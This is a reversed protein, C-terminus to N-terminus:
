FFEGYGTLGRSETAMRKQYSSFIGETPTDPRFLVEDTYSLADILDKTDSHPYEGIEQTLPATAETNFYWFGDQMPTRLLSKIRVDKNRGETFCPKYDLQVNYDRRMVYDFFPAYISSFNVEELAYLNTKWQECFAVIRGLIEMETERYLGCDLAFRRGWPDMGVVVIGNGSTPEQKIETPKSPAPDLIVAKNMWSLPIFQPATEEGCDIDMVEPDYDSSDIVFVPEKGSQTVRGGRIWGDGFDLQKGAKPICMYQASNVFNNTKLLRKAKKTSMKFPAISRGHAADPEGTQKNELISRKYMVFEGPWRKLMHAYVDNYGWPTHPVLVNGHEAPRELPRSNDVWNKASEMVAPSNAANNGIIDDFIMHSFHRGVATGSIGYPELSLESVNISNRVFLAGTGSWKWNRDKTIGRDKDWYSIGKPIMERWIRQFLYNGEVVSLITGIWSKPNEEKENFIGITADHNPDKALTWLANARTCVSTKFCDRPIRVMIRRYSEVVQEECEIPPEMIIRGDDLVSEGWRSVLQCLPLHLDLTLDKCGCIFKAFLFLGFQRDEFVDRLASIQADGLDRPDADAVTAMEDLLDAEPPLTPTSMPKRM